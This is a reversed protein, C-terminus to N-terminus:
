SLGMGVSIGWLCVGAYLGAAMDDAMIGLGDPFKELDRVPWPKWIDFIRFLVFGLIATTLQFDVALFLLPFPAIEDWVVEGPDKKELLKASRTCIPIGVLFLALSCIGFGIESAHASALGWVVALGWLSGITGPAKPFFGVGLGTGLSVAIV